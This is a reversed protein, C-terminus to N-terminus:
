LNILKVNWESCLYLIGVYFMRGAYKAYQITQSACPTVSDEYLADVALLSCTKATDVATHTFAWDVM